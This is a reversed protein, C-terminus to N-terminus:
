IKLELIHADSPTLTKYYDAQSGVIQFGNKLYFSVAEDNGFQVHIVIKTIKLSDKHSKVESLLWDFLQSAIGARRWAPLVCLTMVYVRRTVSDDESLNDELRACIAGVM